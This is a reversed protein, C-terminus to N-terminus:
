FSLQSSLASIKSFWQPYKRDVACQKGALRNEKVAQWIECSTNHVSRPCLGNLRIFNDIASSSCQLSKLALAIASTSVTASRHVAMSQVLLSHDLFYRCLSYQTSTLSLQQAYLILLQLSSTSVLRYELTRLIDCEMEILQGKSYARDCVYLFLELRPPYVEEFKAAMFLSAIGLLQLLKRPVKELSLYRDLIFIAKFLTESHLAFKAHVDILWDVLITRM